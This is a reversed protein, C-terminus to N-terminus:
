AGRATAFVAHGAAVPDADEVRLARLAADFGPLLPYLLDARPAVLAVLLDTGPSLRWAQRVAGPGATGPVGPEARDHRLVRVSRGFGADPRHEIELGEAGTTEARTLLYMRELRRGFAPLISMTLICEGSAGNDVFRRSLSRDSSGASGAPLGTWILPDLPLQVTRGGATERLIPLWQSM